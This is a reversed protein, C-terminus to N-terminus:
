EGRERRVKGFFKPGAEASGIRDLARRPGNIVRRPQDCGVHLENELHVAFVAAVLEHGDAEGLGGGDGKGLGIGLDGRVDLAFGDDPNNVNGALNQVQHDGLDTTIRGAEGLYFVRTAVSFKVDKDPEVEPRATGRTPSWLPFPRV